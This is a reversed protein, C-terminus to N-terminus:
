GCHDVAHYLRTFRLIYLLPFKALQGTDFLKDDRVDLCAFCRRRKLRHHFYKDRQAFSQRYHVDM